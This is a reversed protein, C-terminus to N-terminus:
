TFLKNMAEEYDKVGSTLNSFGLFHKITPGQGSTFYAALCTDFIIRYVEGSQLYSLDFQALYRRAKTKLMLLSKASHPLFAMELMLHYYLDQEILVDAVSGPRSIFLDFMPVHDFLFKKVNRCVQQWKSKQKLMAVYRPIFRPLHSFEPNSKINRAAYSSAGWYPPAPRDTNLEDTLEAPTLEPPATPVLQEEAILAENAEVAVDVRPQDIQQYIEFEQVQFNADRFQPVLPVLVQGPELVPAPRLLLRDGGELNREVFLRPDLPALVVPEPFGEHIHIERNIRVVRPQWPLRRRYQGYVQEWQLNIRELEAPDLRRQDDYDDFAERFRARARRQNAERVRPNAM